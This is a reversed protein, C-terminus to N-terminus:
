IFTSGFMTRTFDTLAANIKDYVASRECYLEAMLVDIHNKPRYIYAFELVRRKEDGIGDLGRDIRTMKRTLHALQEETVTKEYILNLAQVERANAGGQVPTGDFRAGSITTQRSRLEELRDALNKIALENVHYDFLEARAAKVYFDVTKM